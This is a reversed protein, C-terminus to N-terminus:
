FRTNSTAFLQQLRPILQQLEEPLAAATPAETDSALLVQVSFRLSQGKRKPTAPGALALVGGAGLVLLLVVLMPGLIDRLRKRAHHLRSMVTGMPIDLVEAIERYSLGELDSLMIITRHHEPLAALARTIREREQARRAEDDPPAGPRCDDTGV